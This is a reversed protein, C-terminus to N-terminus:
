WKSLTIHPRNEAVSLKVHFYQDDYIFTGPAAAETDGRQPQHTCQDVAAFVQGRYKKPFLADIVALRATGLIRACRAQGLGPLAQRGIM